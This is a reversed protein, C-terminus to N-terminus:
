ITSYLDLCEVARSACPMPYACNSVYLLIHPKQHPRLGHFLCTRMALLVCVNTANAKRSYQHRRVSEGMSLPPGPDQLLVLWLAYFLVRCTCNPNQQRTGTYKTSTNRALVSAIEVLCRRQEKSKKELPYKPLTM